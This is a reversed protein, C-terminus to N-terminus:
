MKAAVASRRGTARRRYSLGGPTFRSWSGSVQKTVRQKRLAPPAPESEPRLTCRRRSASSCSPCSPSSAPRERVGGSELGAWRGLDALTRRRDSALKVAEQELWIKERAQKIVSRLQEPKFPKPVFDYAGQKMAEIATQITAEGTHIIVLLDRQMAQIRKLVDMGGIDPLKLDLLVINVDTRGIIDLGEEGSDATLAQCGMRSILQETGERMGKEADVVLVTVSDPPRQM